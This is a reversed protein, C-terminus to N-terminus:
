AMRAATMTVSKSADWVRASNDHSGTALRTGDPSFSVDQVSATKLHKETSRGSGVSSIRTRWTRRDAGKGTVPNTVIVASQEKAAKIATTFDVGIAISDVDM